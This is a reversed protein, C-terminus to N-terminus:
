MMPIVMSTKVNVDLSKFILIRDEPEIYIALIDCTTNDFNKIVCTTRNPRVTRLQVSWGTKQRNMTM